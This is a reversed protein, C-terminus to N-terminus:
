KKKPTAKTVSGGKSYRRARPPAPNPRAKSLGGSRKQTRRAPKAKSLGM